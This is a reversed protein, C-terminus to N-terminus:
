WQPEAWAADERWKIVADAPIGPTLRDEPNEDLYLRVEYVLKAREQKTQIEKPTFEAESAIFRLTAPFHRDPFADVYIRAPQGIAVKGIDEQSVYAKLYLRDLNVLEYLAGGATVTEGVDILRTTLMGTAPARVVLDDIISRVEAVRERAQALESRVSALERERAAIREPGLLADALEERVREVDAKAAELGQKAEIWALTAEESRQRAVIDKGALERFRAADRGQQVELAEAEELRSEAATLAQRAQSIRLPVERRFVDLSRERAELLKQLRNVAEQAQGLQARTREDELRVLIDGKEVLEGERAELTEVRGQYLSAVSIRDGEMRGNVQILGEPFEESGLLMYAAAGIAVVLIVVGALAKKSLPV